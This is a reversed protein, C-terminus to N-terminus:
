FSKLSKMLKWRANTPLAADIQIGNGNVSHFFWKKRCMADGIALSLFRMFSTRDHYKQVRTVLEDVGAASL